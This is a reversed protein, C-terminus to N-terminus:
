KDYGRIEIGDETVFIPMKGLESAISKVLEVDQQVFYGIKDKLRFQRPIKINLIWKYEFPQFRGDAFRTELLDRECPLPLTMTHASGIFSWEAQHIYIDAKALAIFLKRWKTNSMHSVSFKKSYKLYDDEMKERPM